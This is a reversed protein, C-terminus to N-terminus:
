ARNDFLDLGDVEHVRSLDLTNTTNRVNVPSNWILKGELRAYVSVGHSNARLERVAHNLSATRDDVPVDRIYVQVRIYVLTFVTALLNGKRRATM